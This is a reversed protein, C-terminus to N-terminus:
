YIFVKSGVSLRNYVLKLDDDNLRICGHTVPLGLFRQYLTGHIMYGQGLSLAYDGLVGYEYRSSNAVPPVPLGEEVFAWDPKIWVPDITKGKVHFVGKPTKFMWQQETGNSLLIYSGTSCKGKGILERNKYLFFKNKSTNIVLYASLPTKKTLRKELQDIEKQLEKEQKSFQISDIIPIMAPTTSESFFANEQMAPVVYAAACVFLLISGSVAILYGIISFIKQYRVLYEKVIALLARELQLVRVASVPFKNLVLQKENM